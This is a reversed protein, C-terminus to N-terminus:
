NRKVLFKVFLIDLSADRMYAHKSLLSDQCFVLHLINYPCEILDAFIYFGTFQFNCIFILIDVAKHLCIQDVTQTIGPFFKM